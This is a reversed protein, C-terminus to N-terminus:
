KPWIGTHAYAVAVHALFSLIWPWWWFGHQTYVWKIGKNELPSKGTFFNWFPNLLRCSFIVLSFFILSSFAFGLIWWHVAADTDGAKPFGTHFFATMIHLIALTIFVWWSYFHGDYFAKYVTSKMPDKHLRHLLVPFVRCSAFVALASILTLIGLIIALRQNYLSGPSTSSLESLKAQSTLM